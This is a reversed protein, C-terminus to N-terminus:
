GLSVYSSLASCALGPLWGAECVASRLLDSCEIRFYRSYCCSAQPGTQMRWVEKLICLGQHYSCESALRLYRVLIVTLPSGSHFHSSVHSLTSATGQFQRWLPKDRHGKCIGVPVTTKDPVGQYLHFDLFACSQSM